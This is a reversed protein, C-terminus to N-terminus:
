GCVGNQKRKHRKVTDSNAINCTIHTKHYNKAGVEYGAIQAVVTAKLKTIFIYVPYLYFIYSFSSLSKKEIATVKTKGLNVPKISKLIVGRDNIAKKDNILLM